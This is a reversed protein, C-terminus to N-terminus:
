ANYLNLPCVEIVKVNGDMRISPNLSRFGSYPITTIVTVRHGNRALADACRKAYNSAGGSSRPPYREVIM